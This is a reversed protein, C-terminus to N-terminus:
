FVDEEEVDMEDPESDAEPESKIAKRKCHM